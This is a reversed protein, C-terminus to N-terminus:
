FNCAFLYFMRIKDIHDNSVTGEEKSKNETEVEDLTKAIGKGEHFYKLYLHLESSM